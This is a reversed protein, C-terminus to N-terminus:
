PKPAVVAKVLPKLFHHQEFSGLRLTLSKEFCSLKALFPGMKLSTSGGGAVGKLINIGVIATMVAIVMIVVITTRVTIVMIVVIATM